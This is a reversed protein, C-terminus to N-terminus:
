QSNAIRICFSIYIYGSDVNKIYLVFLKSNENLVINVQNAKIKTFIMCCDLPDFYDIDHQRWYM